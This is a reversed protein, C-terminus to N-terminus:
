PPTNSLIQSLMERILSAYPALDRGQTGEDRLGCLVFETVTEDFGIIGALPTSRKFGAPPQWLRFESGKIIQGDAMEHRQADYFAVFVYPPQATSVVYPAGLSAPLMDKFTEVLLAQDM